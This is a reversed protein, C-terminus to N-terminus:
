NSGGISGLYKGAIRQSVKDALRDEDAENYLTNGTVTISFQNVVTVGTAVPVRLNGTAFQLAVNPNVAENIASKIANLNLGKLLTESFARWWTDLSSLPGEEAPSHLKLKKAAAAALKEAAAAVADAQSELGKAFMDGAITGSKKMDVAWKDVVETIKRLGEEHKLKRDENQKIVTKLEEEFQIKQKEQREKFAKDEADQQDTLNKLYLDKAKQLQEIRHDLDKKAADRAKDRKEQEAEDYIEQLDKEYDKARDIDGDQYAKQINAKTEAIREEREKARRAEEEARAETDIAEKQKELEIIYNDFTGAAADYKAQQMKKFTDHQKEQLRDFEDIVKDTTRKWAEATAKAAEKMKKEAEKAKKGGDEIAGAAAASSRKVKDYSEMGTTGMDKAGNAMDKHAKEMKMAEAVSEKTTSKFKALADERAKGAKAEASAVADGLDPVISVFARVAGLIQYVGTLVASAMGYWAKLMYFRVTENTRYLYTLGAVLGAVAAIVLGILNNKMAANLLTQAVTVAKTVSTWVVTLNSIIDIVKFATIAAVIGLFLAAIGDWNNIILKAVSVFVSGVKIVLNYATNLAESTRKKWEDLTGDKKWQEIKKLLDNIGSKLKEFIPKTVDKAFTGFADKMNSMAGIFTKSQKEMGGKFKEEMLSFLAENFKAIDTIQGKTNVVTGLGQEAAQKIIMNKTIGFEKLRELEGTQADAVAEVAQMIDKGMVAAMDGVYPLVETAKIGYSELRATAEVIGPIEFPTSAAFDQAWQMVEVAAQESKLVTALTNQYQEMQANGQIGYAVVGSIATAIAVGAAAAMTKLGSLANTLGSTQGELQNTASAADTLGKKFDSIDAAITVLLEEIVEQAM